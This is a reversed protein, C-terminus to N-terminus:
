ADGNQGYSEFREEVAALQDDTLVTPEGVASSRVYLRCRDEVHGANEVATELDPGTLASLAPARAAIAERERRLTM